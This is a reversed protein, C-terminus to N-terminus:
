SERYYRSQRPRLIRQIKGRAVLQSLYSSLTRINVDPLIRNLEIPRMAREASVPLCALIRSTLPANVVGLREVHRALLAIEFRFTIQGDVSASAGTRPDTRIM